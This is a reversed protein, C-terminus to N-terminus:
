YKTLREGNVTMTATGDGNQHPAEWVEFTTNRGLAGVMFSAGDFSNIPGSVSNTSITDGTTEERSYEITGDPKIVLRTNEGLWQGIYSQRDAAM